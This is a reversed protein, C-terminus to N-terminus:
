GKFAVNHSTVLDQLKKLLNNDYNVDFNKMRYCNKTDTFYFFVKESGPFQKLLQKVQEVKPDKM